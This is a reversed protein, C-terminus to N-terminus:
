ELKLRKWHELEKRMIFEVIEYAKNFDKNCVSYDFNATEKFESFQEEEAFIRKIIAEARDGREVARHIREDVSVNIFITVLRIDKSKSKLYEVGQPDIIYIDSDHLQDKTAFYEYEGIKTYAIMNDRYQEVESKDIFRHTNGEEVRCPRTAYSKLVKFNNEELKNAISDKGVSSQGVILFLTKM